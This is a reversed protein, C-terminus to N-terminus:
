VRFENIAKCIYRVEDQTVVSSIPLSLVSSHIAEAIPFDNNELAKYCQQKHPPVPYHINTQINKSTLYTSLEDRYPCRIVFLHWVHSEISDFEPLQVLPNNVNETYCKAMQRRADIEQDLYQLKVGLMAAQIDDLRSNTGLYIHDYKKVSGYNGLAKIVRALEADNTTVAGGDGLAGLNKGPYFSFAAAHGWGGSKIGGISAGHAQAADELVLLNNRQAVEMIEPMPALRGYLHVPIIVRTRNTLHKEILSPDINFTQEDPEVLLPVLGAQTVAIVSAIYTNSPVIVEDGDKLKGLEKWAMLTLTLADLGNAVGVCHNSGCFVAFNKEFSELESGNLYWGSDIVRSCAEKLESAYQANIKKLDLFSIM